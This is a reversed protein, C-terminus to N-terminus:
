KPKRSRWSPRAFGRRFNFRIFTGLHVNTLMRCMPCCEGRRDDRRFDANAAAISCNPSPIKRFNEDRAKAPQDLRDAVARGAVSTQQDGLRTAFRSVNM